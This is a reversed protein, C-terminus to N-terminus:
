LACLLVIAALLGAAYSPLDKLAFLVADEDMQGRNTLLWIRTIWYLLIPSMLWLIAPHRYLAATDSSHVYQAFVVVAAYGSSMGAVSLTRYDASGYPRNSARDGWTNLESCRKSLAVSFFFFVSFALLWASVPINTAAGGALIRVTYLAALIMIDLVAIRKAGFVYLLALAAYAALYAAFALPMPFAVAASATLLIAAAIIAPTRALTGAAIPRRSKQPHLRDSPADMLDNLLYIASACLSIAIFAEIASRWAAANRWAHNFLPPLFVLLNKAWQHPRLAILLALAGRQDPPPPTPLPASAAANAM